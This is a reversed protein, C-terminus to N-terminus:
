RATFWAVAGSVMFSIAGGIALATGKIGQFRHFAAVLEDLKASIDATEKQLGRIAEAHQGLVYKGNEPSLTNLDSM